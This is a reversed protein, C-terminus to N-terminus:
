STACAQLPQTSALRVHWPLASGDPAARLTLASGGNVTVIPSGEFGAAFRRARVDVQSRPPAQVVVGGSPLRVDVAGDAASPRFRLCSGRAVSSGDLAGELVPPGAAAAPPTSANLIKLGGARVLVGDAALRAFEPAALIRGPSYAPSSGIADIASFYPGAVVVPAYHRDLLFRPGVTGRALQLAGLESSVQSAAGRLYGAAQGLQNINGAFAVLAVLCAIAIGTANVRTGRFVEALILVIFVAGTYVYRSASPDGDVARGLGVLVWFGVAAVLLGALRPTVRGGRAVHIWSLAGAAVLLVRGWFVDLGFLGGIAGAAMNLAFAPVAALNTSRGPMPTYFAVWWVAFLALPIVWVWARRFSRDRLWSEVAVGLSFLAAFESCGMALVLLVCAAVDGRHDNRELVLLACISLALSLVCGFSVPLLVYEWGLGLVAFPLVLILAIAGIRRRVFEFLATACFLHAATQFARFVWFHDLGVTKFLVRYLAVPVIVLHENYSDLLAHLGVRRSEIWSWDDYYFNTARGRWMLYGFAAILLLSWVLWQSRRADGSRPIRARGLGPRSAAVAM